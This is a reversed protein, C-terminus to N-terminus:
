ETETTGNRPFETGDRTQAIFVRVETNLLDARDLQIYHHSGRAVIRRSRTSLRKLEEQGAEMRAAITKLEHAPVPMDPPPSLLAPDKSFILIPLDGFPGTTATERASEESAAAEELIADFHSPICSDADFWGAYAELGPPVQSCHGLVWSAGLATGWKAIWLDRDARQGRARAAAPPNAIELPTVCDVFVLGAVDHPFRTAYARIHLGAISHGMLVAPTTIGADWLLAHLRDAVANSDRGANQADSWGLGVRDYSCVQTTQSLHAQVKAWILSDNGLGAELVVPPSGTGTCYLHMRRGNVEYLRGLPPYASRLHRVAIWNYLAGTTAMIGLVSITGYM